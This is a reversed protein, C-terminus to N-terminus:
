FVGAPVPVGRRECYGAVEGDFTRRLFAATGGEGSEEEEKGEGGEEVQMGVVREALLRELRESPIGDLLSCLDKKQTQEEGEPAKYCATAFRLLEQCRASGEEVSLLASAAAASLCLTGPEPVTSFTHDYAYGVVPALPFFHAVMILAKELGVKLLVDPTPAPQFGHAACVGCFEDAWAPDMLLNTTVEKVLDEGRLSLVVLKNREGAERRLVANASAELTCSVYRPSPAAGSGNPDAQCLTSDALLPFLHLPGAERHSAYFFYTRCWGGGAGGAGAEFRVPEGGGTGGEKRWPFRSYHTFHLPTAADASEGSEGRVEARAAALADDLTVLKPLLRRTFFPRAACLVQLPPFLPVLGFHSHAVAVPLLGDPPSAQLAAAAEPCFLTDYSPQPCTYVVELVGEGGDIARVAARRAVGVVREYTVGEQLLPALAARCAVAVDMIHRRVEFDCLADEPSAYGELTWAEASFPVAFGAGEVGESNTPLVFIRVFM